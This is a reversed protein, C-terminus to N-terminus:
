KHCWWEKKGNICMSEIHNHNGCHKCVHVYAPCADYRRKNGCCSKGSSIANVTLSSNAICKLQKDNIEYSM